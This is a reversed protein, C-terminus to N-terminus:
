AVSCAGLRQNKSSGPLSAPRVGTPTDYNFSTIALSEDFYFVGAQYKLGEDNNSAIRVEQTLQDM